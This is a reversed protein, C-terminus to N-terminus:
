TTRSRVLYGLGGLLVGVAALLIFAGIPTPLQGLIQEHIQLSTLGGGGSTAPTAAWGAMYGGWMMLFMAGAVGVSMFVLHGWALYNTLGKYVKGLVGEIYFYFVATVATAIVGVVLFSIYGTFFWTGGGNGAIVRAASYYDSKGTFYQLPDLILITIITAALGEAVSAWIFRGAWKGQM